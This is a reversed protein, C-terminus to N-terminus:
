TPLTSTTTAQFSFSFPSIHLGECSVVKPILLVYAVILYHAPNHFAFAPFKESRFHSYTVGLLASLHRMGSVSTTYLALICTPAKWGSTHVM